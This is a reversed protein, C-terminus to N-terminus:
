VSGSRQLLLLLLVVVTMLFLVRGCVVGWGALTHHTHLTHAHTTNQSSCTRETTKNAELLIPAYAHATSAAAQQLQTASPVALVAPLARLAAAGVCRRLV